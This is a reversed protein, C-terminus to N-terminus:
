KKGKKGKGKVPTARTASPAMATSSGAITSQATIPPVPEAKTAEQTGGRHVLNLIISGLFGTLIYLAWRPVLRIIDYTKTMIIAQWEM